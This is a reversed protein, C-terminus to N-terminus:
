SGTFGCSMVSHNNEGTSSLSGKLLFAHMTIKSPKFNLSVLQSSISVKKELTILLTRRNSRSLLTKFWVAVLNCKKLQASNMPIGQNDYNLNPDFKFEGCIDEDEFGEELAEYVQSSSAYDYVKCDYLEKADAGVAAIVLLVLFM